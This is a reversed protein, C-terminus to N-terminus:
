HARVRRTLKSTDPSIKAVHIRETMRTSYRPPLPPLSSHSVPTAEKHNDYRYYRFGPSDYSTQYRGLTPNYSSSQGRYTEPYRTKMYSIHLKENNSDIMDRNMNNITEPCPSPSRSHSILDRSWQSSTRPGFHGPSARSGTVMDSYFPQPWNEEEQARCNRIMSRARTRGGCIRDSALVEGTEGDVLDYFRPPVSQLRSSAPYLGRCGTYQGYLGYGREMNLRECLSHDSHRKSTDQLTCLVSVVTGM